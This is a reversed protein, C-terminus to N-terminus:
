PKANDFFLPSLIRVVMYDGTSGDACEVKFRVQAQMSNPTGSSQGSASALWLGTAIGLSELPLHDIQTPATTPYTPKIPSTITAGPEARTELTIKVKVSSGVKKIVEAHLALSDGSRNLWDTLM